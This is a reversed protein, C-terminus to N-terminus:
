LAYGTDHFIHRQGVNAILLDSVLGLYVPRLQSITASVTAVLREMIIQTPVDGPYMYRGVRTAHLFQRIFTGTGFQLKGM